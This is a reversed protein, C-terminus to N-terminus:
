LLQDFFVEGGGAAIVRLDRYGSELESEARHLGAVLGEAHERWRQDIVIVDRGERKEQRIDRLWYWFGLQRKSKPDQMVILYQRLGPKLQRTMLVRKGPRVTDPQAQARSYHSLLLLIISILLHLLRIM